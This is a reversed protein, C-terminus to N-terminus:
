CARWPAAAAGSAAASAGRISAIKPRQEGNKRGRVGMAKFSIMDEVLGNARLTRM